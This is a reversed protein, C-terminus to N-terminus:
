AITELPDGGSAPLQVPFRKEKRLNQMMSSIEDISPELEGGADAFCIPCAMNCRSTLDINGLLTSTIHNNCVGCDHPCGKLEATSNGLGSKRDDQLYKIFRKYLLEDSWYIERFSGHDDCQKEMFVKGSEQLIHASVVKLCVPCLSSVTKDITAMSYDTLPIDTDKANNANSTRWFITSCPQVPPGEHIGSM